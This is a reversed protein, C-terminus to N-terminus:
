DESSGPSSPVQYYYSYKKYRNEEFPSIKAGNLICAISDNRELLSGIAERAEAAGTLGSRCVFVIGDVLEALTLPEPTIMMPSTDIVIVDFQERAFKVFAKFRDSSILESANSKPSKRPAVVLNSQLTPQFVNTSSELFLEPSLDTQNLLTDLGTSVSLNFIQAVRGMRFDADILLTRKGKRAFTIAINAACTSKGENPRCSTVMVCYKGPSKPNKFLYEIEGRISRFSEVEEITSNSGHIVLMPDVSNTKAKEKEKSPKLPKRYAITGLTKLGLLVLIDEKTWINIFVISWGLIFAPVVLGLLMIAIGAIIIRNRFSPPEFLAPRAPDVVSVKFFESGTVLKARNYSELLRDYINQNNQNTNNLRELELQVKVPTRVQTKPANSVLRLKLDALDQDMRKVLRAENEEMQKYLAEKEAEAQQIKPHGPSLTKEYGAQRSNVEFLSARLINAKPEGADAMAMLLENAWYVKKEPTADPEKAGFSEKVRRILRELNDIQQRTDLYALNDNSNAGDQKQLEPHEAYYKSLEDQSKELREKSLAMDKEMQVLIGVDQVETTGYYVELFQDRLANLIDAVMEPDRDKLGIEFNGGGPLAKATLNKRLNQFTEELSLFELDVKKTATGILFDPNFELELGNISIKNDRALPGSFIKYDTSGIEPKFTITINTSLGTSTPDVSILYNGLGLNEGYSLDKFVDKSFLNKTTIRIRLKLKRITADLVQYSNFISIISQGQTIAVDRMVNTQAGVVQPFRMVTTASYSRPLDWISLAIGIPIASILWVGLALWKRLWLIHFLSGISPIKRPGTSEEIESDINGNGSRNKSSM